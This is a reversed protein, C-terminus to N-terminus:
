YLDHDFSPVQPSTDKCTVLRRVEIDVYERKWCPPVTLDAVFTTEPEQLERFTMPNSMVTEEDTKRDDTTAVKKTCVVTESCKCRSSQTRQVKSTSQLVFAWIRVVELVAVDTVWGVLIFYRCTCAMTQCAAMETDRVRSCNIVLIIFKTRKLVRSLSNTRVASNIVQTPCARPGPLVPNKKRTSRNVQLVRVFEGGDDNCTRRPGVAQPASQITESSSLPRDARVYARWQDRDQALNIWVRDDYGVERLDIKINDEWRRRPRGLPRKGEPRGVLVRYANRSEGMRAVHEAWRLRRKRHEVTWGERKRTENQVAENKREKEM